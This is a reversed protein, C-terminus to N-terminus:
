NAEEEEEEWQMANPTLNTTFIIVIIIIIMEGTLQVVLVEAGLLGSILVCKTTATATAAAILQM